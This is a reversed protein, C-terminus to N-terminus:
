KKAIKRITYSHLSLTQTSTTANSALSLTLTQTGTIDSAATNWAQGTTAANGDSLAGAAIPTASQRFERFVGYVLSTSSISFDATPKFPMRNTNSAGVSMTGAGTIISFSGLSAVPAYTRTGGSNNLITFILELAVQDGAVIGTISKNIITVAGGVGGNTLDFDQNPADAYVTEINSSAGAQYATITTNTANVTFDGSTGGTYQARLKCVQTSGLTVKWMQSVSAEVSVAVPVGFAAVGTQDSGNVDLHGEFTRDNTVGNRVTDFVGNIIWTGADLTLTAGAVDQLSGTVTLGSNCAVASSNGTPSTVTTAATLRGKSDVTFTPIQTTSGYSGAAVATNALTAANSGSTTVDGSLEAATLASANGRVIGTLTSGTGTGGNAVALTGTISAADLTGTVTHAANWEAKNVEVGPQDPLTAVKTHTVALTM